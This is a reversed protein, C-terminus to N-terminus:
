HAGAARGEADRLQGGLVGALTAAAAGFLLSMFTWFSLMAGAKASKEAIEKTTQRAKTEVETVRQEAAARPIGARASVVNALYTRDSDDLRAQATARVLIRTLEARLEPNLPAPNGAPVAGPGVAGATEAPSSQPRVLLDVFYDIPNGASAGSASASGASARVAAGAAFLTVAAAVAVMAVVGVAWVVLGQAADRFATEGAPGALPRGRLRAALYGGAAFGLSQAMVLWVAALATLTTASTGIGYPLSLGIGLGLAIIIFCIAAAALTGAIVASWSFSMGEVGAATSAMRPQDFSQTTM